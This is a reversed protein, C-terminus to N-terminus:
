RKTSIGLTTGGIQSNIILTLKGATAVDVKYYDVHDNWALQGKYEKDTDISFADEFSNNQGTGTEALTEESSQYTVNITYGDGINGPM